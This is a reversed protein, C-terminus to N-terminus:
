NHAQSLESDSMHRKLCCIVDEPHIPLTAAAPGNSDVRLNAPVDLLPHICQYAFPMLWVAVRLLLCKNGVEVSNGHQVNFSQQNGEKGSSSCLRMTDLTVM